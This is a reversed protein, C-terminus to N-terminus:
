KHPHPDILRSWHVLSSSRVIISFTHTSPLLRCPQFSSNWSLHKSTIDGAAITPLDDQLLADWEESLSDRRGDQLYVSILRVERDISFAVATTEIYSTAPFPLPHHSIRRHHFNRNRRFYPLGQSDFATQEIRQILRSTSNSQLPSSPKLSYYIIDIDYETAFAALVARQQSVGRANWAVLRLLRAM